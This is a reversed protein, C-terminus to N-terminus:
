NVENNILSSSDDHPRKNSYKIYDLKFEENVVEEERSKRSSLIFTGALLVMTLVICATIVVNRVLTGQQGDPSPLSRYLM